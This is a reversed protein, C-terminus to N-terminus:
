YIGREGNSIGVWIRCNRTNVSSLSHFRAVNFWLINWPRENDVVMQALCRLASECTELNAPLVPQVHIMQVPILALHETPNLVGYQILM